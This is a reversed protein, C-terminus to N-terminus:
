TLIIGKGRLAALISNVATVIGDAQAASTYGYPTSTTSGTTALTTIAAAPGQAEFEVICTNTTVYRAVRGVLSNSGPTLTLTDDASAYVPAGVDTVAVSAITAKVLGKTIVRARIFGDTATASNDAKREAVGVFTDGAVLGRAYGSTLGVYAGEYICVSAKVPVSNINGLEYTRPTDASLAM